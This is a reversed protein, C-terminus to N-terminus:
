IYVITLFQFLVRPFEIMEWGYIMAEISIYSTISFVIMTAILLYVIYELKIKDLMM